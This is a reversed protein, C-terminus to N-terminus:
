PTVTSLRAGCRRPTLQCQSAPQPAAAAARRSPAAHGCQRRRAAHRVRPVRASTAARPPPRRPRHHPLALTPSPTQARGAARLPPAQATPACRPAGRRRYDSGRAPLPTTCCRDGRARRQRSRLSRLTCTQTSTLKCYTYTSLDRSWYGLALSVVTCAIM